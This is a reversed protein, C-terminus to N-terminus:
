YYYAIGMNYYLDTFKLSIVENSSLKVSVAVDGV